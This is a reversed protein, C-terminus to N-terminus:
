LTEAKNRCINVNVNFLFRTSMLVFIIFVYFDFYLQNAGLDKGLTCINGTNLLPPHPDMLLSLGAVITYRDWGLVQFFRKKNVKIPIGYTSIGDSKVLQSTL